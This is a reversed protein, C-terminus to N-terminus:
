DFTLLFRHRQRLWSRTGRCFLVDFDHRESKVDTRLDAADVEGLRQGRLLHLLYAVGEQLPLDDKEAVLVEIMRLMDRHRPLEAFRGDAVGNEAM